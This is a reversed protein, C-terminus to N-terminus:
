SEVKVGYEDANVTAITWDTGTPDQEFIESYFVYSTSLGGTATGDYNTGGQRIVPALTRATADDKRAYLNTQVGFVTGSLTSLSGYKYTDRDGVTASTVYSADDDPPNDDVRSFHNSGTNPTWDNDSGDADPFLTEVRIDGLFTNRPSPGSTDLFYLDDFVNWGGFNINSDAYLEVAGINTTGLNVTTTPIDASGNVQTSVQGSAGNVKVHVEVYNWANATLVATGTQGSGLAIKGGTNIYISLISGLGATLITAIQRTSALSNVIFAFGFIGEAYTGPLTKQFSHSASSPANLELAGGSLRGPVYSTTGNSPHAHTWGKLSALTDNDFHDFGEILQIAM